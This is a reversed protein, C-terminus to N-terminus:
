IKDTSSELAQRTREDVIQFVNALLKGNADGAPWGTLSEAVPNMRTILGDADTVIVADGISELIHEAQIENERLRKMTLVQGNVDHCVILVGAIESSLEYIPSYSYTWYVDQLRGDRM